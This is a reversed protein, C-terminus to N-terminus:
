DVRRISDGEFLVQGREHLAAVVKVLETTDFDEHKDPPMAANLFTLLASVTM